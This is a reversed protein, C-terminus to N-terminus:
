EPKGGILDMGPNDKLVTKGCHCFVAWPDSKKAFSYAAGAPPDFSCSADEEFVNGALIAERVSLMSVLPRRVSRFRNNSVTIAGHYFFDTELKQLEPFVAIVERTSSSQRYCCNDFFNDEIVMEEVPGSEYWYNGDGSVFVAAGSTHFYCCAIRVMKAGTALVGRGTLPRFTCGTISIEGDAAELVRADDGPCWEEPLETEPEVMTLSKNLLRANRLKVKAYPKGTDNKMLELTDGPFAGQLGQQQFHGSDLYYFKGGPIRMKLPRYIGHINLSDDLTGALECDRLELKGRCECFHVADDSVSVRRGRPIVKVGDLLIGSSLQALIGMGAAHHLRINKLTINHCRDFVMGPCLRLEHKIIWADGALRGDRDPIGILGNKELLGANPIRVPSANWVVERCATDYRHFILQGSMNDYFDETFHIKGAEFRHPGALKLWVIGNERAATDADTVFSDTFDITLGSLTLGSCNVAVVPSIRGHFILETEHGCIDMDALDQLDLAITKIGEDNNSFYSYRRTCGDPYFDYRGPSFEINKAGTERSEALAKQWLIGANEGPRPVPISIKM